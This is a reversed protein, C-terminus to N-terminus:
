GTGELEIYASQPRHLRQQPLTRPRLKPIGECARARSPPSVQVHSFASAAHKTSDCGLVVSSLNDVFVRVVDTETVPAGRGSMVVEKNGPYVDPLLVTDPFQGAFHM